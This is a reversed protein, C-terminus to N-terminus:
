KRFSWSYFKNRTRIDYYLRDAYREEPLNMMWADELDKQADIVVKAKLRESRNPLEQVVTTGCAFDLLRRGDERAFCPAIDAVAM